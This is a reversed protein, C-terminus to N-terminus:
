PRRDPNLCLTLAQQVGTTVALDALDLGLATMATAVQPQIGAVVVRAGLLRAAHTLRSFLHATQTDVLSVGTFDFIVSKIHLTAIKDLVGQTLMEARQADYPGVLPVLLVGRAIELMVASLDRILAAMAEREHTLEANREALRQNLELQERRAQERLEESFRLEENLNLLAALAEGLAPSEVQAAKVQDWTLQLNGAAIDVMYSILPAVLVRDLEGPSRAQGAAIPNPPPPPARLRRRLQELKHLVRTETVSLGSGSADPWSNAPSDAVSDASLEASSDTSLDPPRGSQSGRILDDLIASLHETFSELQPM